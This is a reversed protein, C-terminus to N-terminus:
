LNFKRCTQIFLTTAYRQELEPEMEEGLERRVVLLSHSMLKGLRVLYDKIEASRSHNAHGNHNDEQVQTERSHGSGPQPSVLKANGRQDFDLQYSQGKVVSELSSHGVNGWIKLDEGDPTTFVANIRRGYQTDYAQAPYKCKAIISM